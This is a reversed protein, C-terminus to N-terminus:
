CIWSKKRKYIYQDTGIAIPASIEISMKLL